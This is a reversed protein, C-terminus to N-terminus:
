ICLHVLDNTHDRKTSLFNSSINIVPRFLFEINEKGLKAGHCIGFKPVQNIKLFHPDIVKDKLFSIDVREFWENNYNDKVTPHKYIGDVQSKVYEDYSKYKWLKM